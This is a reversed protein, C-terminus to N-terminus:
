PKPELAAVTFLKMAEDRDKGTKFGIWLGPSDNDPQLQAVDFRAATLREIEARLTETEASQTADWKLAFLENLREVEARLDDRERMLKEFAATYAMAQPEKQIWRGGLPGRTLERTMAQAQSAM